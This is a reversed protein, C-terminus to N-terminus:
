GSPAWTSTSSTVMAPMRAAPPFGPLGGPRGAEASMMEIHLRHEHRYSLMQGSGPRGAVPVGLSGAETMRQGIAAIWPSSSSIVARHIWSPRMAAWAVPPASTSRTLSASQRWEGCLPDVRLRDPSIAPKTARIRSMCLGSLLWGGTATSTRRTVLHGRDRQDLDRAFSRIPLGAPFDACTSSSARREAIM